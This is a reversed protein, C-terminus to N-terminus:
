KEIRINRSHQRQIMLEVLVELRPVFFRDGKRTIAMLPDRPGFNVKLYGPKIKNM